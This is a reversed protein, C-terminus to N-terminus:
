GEEKRIKLMKDGGKQFEYSTEVVETAYGARELINMIGELHPSVNGELTVLPFIRVEKAVRLMEEIAHLHFVEDMHDSYLFLFHSSLALDFQGDEFSFNPLAGERYRGESRGKEYDELFKQMTEMRLTYLADPSSITHWVFHKENLKVQKLVEHAVEDIRKAIQIKSFHYIPDISVVDGGMATVEANFSAPGDGCGLIKSKLELDSLLFMSQYESLNRGWPVINELKM